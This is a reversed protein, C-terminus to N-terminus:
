EGTCFNEVNGVVKLAKGNEERTCIKETRRRRCM